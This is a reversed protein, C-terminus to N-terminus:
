IFKEEEHELGGTVTSIIRIRGEKEYSKMEELFKEACEPCYYSEAGTAGGYTRRIAYVISDPQILKDCDYCRISGAERYAAALADERGAVLPFEEPYGPYKSKM